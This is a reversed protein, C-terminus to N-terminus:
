PANGAPPRRADLAAILGLWRAQIAFLIGAASVILFTLVIRTILYTAQKVGFLFPFARVEFLDVSLSLPITGILTFGRRLGRPYIPMAAAAKTESFKVDIVAGDYNFCLHRGDAAWVFEPPPFLDAVMLSLEGQEWAVAAVLGETALLGLPVLLLAALTALWHRALAKLVLRPPLLGHRDHAYAAVLAIPMVLWAALALALLWLVGPNAGQQPLAHGRNRFYMPAALVLAAAVGLLGRAPGVWFPPEAVEEEQDPAPHAVSVVVPTLLGTEEEHLSRSQLPARVETGYGRVCAAVLALALVPGFRPVVLAATLLMAGVLIVPLVPPRLVESIAEVMAWLLRGSQNPHPVVLESKCSWCRILTGAQDPQARLTRGCSCHVEIHTPM